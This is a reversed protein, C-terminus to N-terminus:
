FFFLNCTTKQVKYEKNTKGNKKCINCRKIKNM